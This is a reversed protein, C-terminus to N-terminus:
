CVQNIHHHDHAPPQVVLVSGVSTCEQGKGLIETQLGLEPINWWRVSDRRGKTKFSHNKLDTSPHHCPSSGLTHSWTSWAMRQSTKAYPSSHQLGSKGLPWVELEKIDKETSVCRHTFPWLFPSPPSTTNWQGTARPSVLRVAKVKQSPSTIPFGARHEARFKGCSRGSQLRLM